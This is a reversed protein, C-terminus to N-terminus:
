NTKRHDIYNEDTGLGIFNFSENLRSEFRSGYKELLGKKSLNTTTHTKGCTMRNEYRNKFIYPMLSIKNGYDLLTTEEDGLDDFIRETKDNPLVYANVGFFGRHKMTDPDIERFVNNMKQCTKYGVKINMVKQRFDRYALLLETKGSGTKGGLLLGKGLSFGGKEFEVENNLYQCILEIVQETEDSITLVNGSSEMVRESLIRLFMQRMEISDYIPRIITSKKNTESVQPQLSM